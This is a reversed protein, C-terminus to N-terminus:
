VNKIAKFYNDTHMAGLSILAKELLAKQNITLPKRDHRIIYSVRQESVDLKRALHRQTYNQAILWNILYRRNIISNTHIKSKYTM